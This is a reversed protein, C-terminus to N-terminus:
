NHRGKISPCLEFQLLYIAMKQSEAMSDILM